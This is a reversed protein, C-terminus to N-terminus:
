VSPLVIEINRLMVGVPLSYAWNKRLLDKGTFLDSPVEATASTFPSPLGSKSATM